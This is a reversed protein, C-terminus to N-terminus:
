TADHHFLLCCKLKTHLLPDETRICEEKCALLSAASIVQPSAAAQLIQDALVLQQWRPMTTAPATTGPGPGAAPM